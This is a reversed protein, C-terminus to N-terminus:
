AFDTSSFEQRGKCFNYFSALDGVKSKVKLHMKTPFNRSFSLQLVNFWFQKSSPTRSRAAWAPTV